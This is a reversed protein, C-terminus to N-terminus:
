EGMQEDYMKKICEYHRDTDDNLTKLTSKLEEPDNDYIEFIKKELARCEMELAVALAETITIENRMAYNLHENLDALYAKIEEAKYPRQEYVLSGDEIMTRFTRVMLAHTREEESLDKWFEAFEPLKEAYRLYLHALAIENKELMIAMEIQEEKNEM